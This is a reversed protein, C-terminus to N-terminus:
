IENEFSQAHINTTKLSSVFSMVSDAIIQIRPSKNLKKSEQTALFLGLLLALYEAQNNTKSGLYVGDKAIVTDGEIVCAGAGAPGPNGRSAGDSYIKWVASKDNSVNITDFLAMQKESSLKTKMVM